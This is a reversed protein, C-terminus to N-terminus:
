YDWSEAHHEHHEEASYRWVILNAGEVYDLGLLRRSVATSSESKARM